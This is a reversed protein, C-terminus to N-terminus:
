QTEGQGQVSKEDNKKDDNKNTNISQKLKDWVDAGLRGGLSNPSYSSNSTTTPKPANKSKHRNRNNM